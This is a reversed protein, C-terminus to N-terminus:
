PHDGARGLYDSELALLAAQDSAKGSLQVRESVAAAAQEWRESAVFCREASEWLYPQKLLTGAEAYAEGAAQAQGGAEYLGGLREALAGRSEEDTISGINEAIVRAALDPREGKEFFRV